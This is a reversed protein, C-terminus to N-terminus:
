KKRGFVMDLWLSFFTKEPEKQRPNAEITKAPTVPTAAPAASAPRPDAKTVIVTPAAAKEPAPEAAGMPEPLEVPEARAAPEEHRAAYDPVDGAEAAPTGFDHTAEAVERASAAEIVEVSVTTEPSAAPPAAAPEEALPEIEPMSCPESSRKEFEMGMMEHHEAAEHHEYPPPAHHVEIGLSAAVEEVRAKSAAALEDMSPASPRAEARAPEGSTRSVPESHEARAPEAVAGAPEVASSISGSSLSALNDLVNSALYFANGSLEGEAQTRVEALAQAFSLTQEGGGDGTDEGDFGALRFLEKIYRSAAGQADGSLESDAARQLGNLAKLLDEARTM